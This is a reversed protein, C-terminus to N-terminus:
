AKRQKASMSLVRLGFVFTINVVREDLAKFPIGRRYQDLLLELARFKEQGELVFLEGYGMVSEYAMSCKEPDENALLEHGRDMEFFAKQNKKVLEVKKGEMASHMYFIPLGDVMEMGFNLPVVYPYEAQDNLAIRIVDCGKIVEVIRDLEKIERDSRRM